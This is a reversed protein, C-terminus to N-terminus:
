TVLDLRRLVELAREISDPQLSWALKNAEGRLEAVTMPKQQRRLIFYTKAAISLELYDVDVERVRRVAHVVKESQEPRKEKLRAVLAQGDPTLRYDYRRLEGFGSPNAVGFAIAEEKVYELSRLNGVAEEVAASYPGYHHAAFNLDFGLTVQVFYCLKQLLTKGAVSGGYADLVLLVVEKANM